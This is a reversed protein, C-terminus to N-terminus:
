PQWRRQIAYGHRFITRAQRFSLDAAM